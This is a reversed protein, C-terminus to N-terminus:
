TTIIVATITIKCRSCIFVFIQYMISPIIMRLANYVSLKKFCTIIPRYYIFAGM